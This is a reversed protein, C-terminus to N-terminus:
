GCLGGHEAGLPLGVSEDSGYRIEKIINGDTDYEYILKGYMLNYSNYMVIEVMNRDSDYQKTDRWRLTGDGNHYVEETLDGNANYTYIKNSYISGDGYYSVMKTVDGAENFHYDRLENTVSRVIEEDIVDLEYRAYTASKVNGYLSIDHDWGERKPPETDNHQAFLPPINAIVMAILILIIRQM